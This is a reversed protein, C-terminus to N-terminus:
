PLGDEDVREVLNIVHIKQDPIAKRLLEMLKTTSAWLKDNYINNFVAGANCEPHELRRQIMAIVQEDTPMKYSQEDLPNEALWEDLKEGKLKKTSKERELLIEELEAAKAVLSDEMAQVM